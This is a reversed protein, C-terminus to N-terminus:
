CDDWPKRDAKEESDLFRAHRRDKARQETTCETMGIVDGTRVRIRSGSIDRFELWRPRWRRDLVRQIRAAQPMHVYFWASECRVVWYDRAVPQEDDPKEENNLYKWIRNM